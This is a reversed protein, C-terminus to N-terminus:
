IQLVFRYCLGPYKDLHEIMDHGLMTLQRVHVSKNSVRPVRWPCHVVRVRHGVGPLGRHFQTVEPGPSATPRSFGWPAQQGDLTQCRRPTWAM